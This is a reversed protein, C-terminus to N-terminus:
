SAINDREENQVAPAFEKLREQLKTEWPRLMSTLTKAKVGMEKAIEPISVGEVRNRWIASEIDPPFGKLAGRVAERIALVEAPDDPCDLDRPDNPYGHDKPNWLLEDLDENQGGPSKRPDLERGSKRPDQTSPRSNRLYRGDLTHWEYKEYRKARRGFQWNAIKVAKRFYARIARENNGVFKGYKPILQLLAEQVIEEADALDRELSRLYGILRPRRETAAREFEEQTMTTKQEIQGDTPESDPQSNISGAEGPLGNPDCQEKNNAVTGGTQEPTEDQFYECLSSFRQGKDIPQEALPSLYEALGVDTGPEVGLASLNRAVTTKSWRELRDVQDKLSNCKLVFREVAHSNNVQTGQWGIGHMLSHRGIPVIYQRYRAHLDDVLEKCDKCFWVSWESGSTLLEAGCCRCLEVVTNYDFGPWTQEKSDGASPDQLRECACRQYFRPTSAGQCTWPGCVELCVACIRMQSLDLDSFARIPSLNIPKQQSM